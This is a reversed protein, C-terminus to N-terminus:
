NLVDIKCAQKVKVLKADTFLNMAIEKNKSSSM